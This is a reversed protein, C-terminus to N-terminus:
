REMLKALATINRRSVPILEGGILELERDSRDIRRVNDTNVVFARHCRFFPSGHAAVNSLTEYFGIKEGTKKYLFIKNNAGEASEFFLIDSYPINFAQEGTKVTFIKDTAHKGDLYRNYATQICEVVRRELDAPPSDKTIYEMAELKLRFVMHTLEAHTTIFVISASVDLTRIKAGLEIGNIDSQLDVDFFYLGGKVRNTQVYDLVESPKAASLVLDMDLEHSILYKEVINRIHTRQKLDDECILVHVM